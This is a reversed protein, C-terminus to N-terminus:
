EGHEPISAQSSETDIATAGDTVDVIDAPDLEVQDNPKGSNVNQTPPPALIRQRIGAIYALRDSHLEQRSLIIPGSCWHLDYDQGIWMGALLEGSLLNPYCIMVDSEDATVNHYRLRMVGHRISGTMDYNLRVEHQGYSSGKVHGFISISVVEKHWSWFPESSKASDLTLHYEIWDGALHQYRNRDRILYFIDDRNTFGLIAIGSLLSTLLGILIAM